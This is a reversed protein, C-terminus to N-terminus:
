EDHEVWFESVPLVALTRMSAVTAVSGQWTGPLRDWISHVEDETYPLYTSIPEAISADDPAPEFRALSDIDAALAVPADGEDEIEEAYYEVLDSTCWCTGAHLGAKLIEPLRSRGTVHYM